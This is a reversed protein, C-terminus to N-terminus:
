FDFGTCGRWRKIQHVHCFEDDTDKYRWKYAIGNRITVQDRKDNNSDVIIVQNEPAGDTSWMKDMASQYESEASM